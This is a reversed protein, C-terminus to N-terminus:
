VKVYLAGFDSKAESFRSQYPVEVRSQNSGDGYVVHYYETGQGGGRVIQDCDVESIGIRVAPIQMCFLSAEDNDSM